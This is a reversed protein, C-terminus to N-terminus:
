NLQCACNTEASITGDDLCAQALQEEVANCEGGSGKSSEYNSKATMCAAQESAEKTSCDLSSFCAEVKSGVEDCASSGCATVLPTSLLLSTILLLKRM